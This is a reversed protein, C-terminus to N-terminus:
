PAQLAPHACAPLDDGSPMSGSICPFFKDGPKRPSCCQSFLPANNSGEMMCFPTRTYSLLQQGEKKYASDMAPDAFGCFTDVADEIELIAMHAHPRLAAKVEADNMGRALKVKAVSSSVNAPVRPNLLFNAERVGVGFSNEFFRPTDLVHDMPCDFPLRMTEAGGVRCNRMEKWMFDCYCLMRPLIVDRGTAKAVGLLARIIKARRTAEALHYKVADRSDVSPGMTKFPLNAGLSAATVYRGNYYSDEDVLWLGAERLRQRKGYAFKSGEAFQYTMHVSIPTAANPLTHAHQVFYTHGNLYQALPLVGLKLEGIGSITTTFIRKLWAGDRKYQALPKAKTLMNFAAQDRIRAEKANAVTDRWREVFALVTPRARLYVLGTNFDCHLLPYRADSPLDICDTAIAIDAETWPAERM